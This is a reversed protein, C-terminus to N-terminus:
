SLKYDRKVIYCSSGFGEIEESLESFPKESKYSYLGNNRGAM